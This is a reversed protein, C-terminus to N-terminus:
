NGKSKIANYFKSYDVKAVNSYNLFMKQADLFYLTGKKSIFFHVIADDGKKTSDLYSYSVEIKISDVLTPMLSDLKNPKKSFSFYNPLPVSEFDKILTYIEEGNFKYKDNSFYELSMLGYNPNEYNFLSSSTPSIFQYFFSDRTEKSITVCSSLTLMLSMLLLYIKPKVKKM